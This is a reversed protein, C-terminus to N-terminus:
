ARVGREQEWVRLAEQCGYASPMPCVEGTAKAVIIPGNGVGIARMWDGTRAFTRTNYTFAWAAESEEAWEDLIVLEEDATPYGWLRNAADLALRAAEERSVSM